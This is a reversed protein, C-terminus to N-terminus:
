GVRGLRAWVAPTKAGIVFTTPGFFTSAVMYSGAARRLCEARSRCVHKGQSGGGSLRQRIMGKEGNARERTCQTSGLRLEPSSDRNSKSRPRVRAGYLRRAYYPPLHAGRDFQDLGMFGRFRGTPRGDNNVVSSPSAIQLRM